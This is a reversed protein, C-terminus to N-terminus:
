HFTMRLRGGACKTECQAAQRLDCVLCRDAPSLGENNADRSDRTYRRNASLEQQSFSATEAVKVSLVFERDTFYLKM